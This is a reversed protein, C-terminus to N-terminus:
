GSVTPERVHDLAGRSCRELVLHDDAAAAPRALLGAEGHEVRVAVAVLDHQDPRERVQLLALAGPHGADPLVVPAEPQLDLHRHRLREGRGAVGGQEGVQPAHAVDPERAGGPQELAV